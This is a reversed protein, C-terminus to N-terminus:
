NEISLLEFDSDVASEKPTGSVVRQVRLVCDFAGYFNQPVPRPLDPGCFLIVEIEFLKSIQRVIGRQFAKVYINGATYDFKNVAFDGIAQFVDATSIKVTLPKSIDFFSAGWLAFQFELLAYATYPPTSAKVKLVAERVSNTTVTVPAKLPESLVTQSSPSLYVYEGLHTDRSAGRMEQTINHGMALLLKFSQPIEPNWAVGIRSNTEAIDDVM